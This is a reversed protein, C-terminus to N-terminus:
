EPLQERLADLASWRPDRADISCSCATVNRDLGCVPCLGRCGPSCLPADPLELLVTERVLPRLDIQENEIPFADPDTVTEQYLERVRTDIRGAVPALCRRCEGHFRASIAGEIVIGTSLSSCVLEVDVTSKPELREDHLEVLDPEVECTIDKLSGPRRLLELANVVLPNKM